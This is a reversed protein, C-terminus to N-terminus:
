DKGRNDGATGTTKDPIADAGALATEDENFAGGAESIQGSSQEDSSEDDAKKDPHTGPREDTPTM